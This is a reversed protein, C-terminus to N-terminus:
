NLEYKTVVNWEYENMHKVRLSPTIGDYLGDMHHFTYITIPRNEIIKDIASEEEDTMGEFYLYAEYDECDIGDIEFLFFTSEGELKKKIKNFGARTGQVWSLNPTEMIMNLDLILIDGEVLDETKKKTIAM